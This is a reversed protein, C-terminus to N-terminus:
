KILINYYLRGGVLIVGMSFFGAFASIPPIFQVMIGVNPQLQSVSSSNGSTIVALKGSRNAWCIDYDTNHCCAKHPSHM